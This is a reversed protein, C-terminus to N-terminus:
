FTFRAGAQGVRGGLGGYDLIEGFTSDAFNQDPGALDNRNFLNFFEMRLELNYRSQPGMPIVKHIGLDETAIGPNRLQQQYNGATGLQGFVPNQFCAKNLYQGFIRPSGNTLKCGPVLDIYVSAFGDYYNTSHIQMPTGTAYHFDGYISWNNILGNVFPGVSSFLKKGQGFPLFYILYGKVIHTVDFDSIDKAEDKLDYTNQLSGIGWLEQFDSDVDGHTRSWNYSAQVSFGHGVMRTISVQVSKYNGNGKPTGVSFLPGYGAEAQPYPTLGEWGPGTNGWYGNYTSPLKGTAYFNQMNAVTPQNHQFIGSQLHYSHSQIWEVDIRTARDLERQIGINYQQVNGPTLSHPDISVVDAQTYAPGKATTIVPQYGNDWNFNAEQSTTHFGPNGAVSYPIGGWTNLNLPTYYINFNGRAVLKPTIAYSVGIHPSYNYWDQDREFSQSGNTLYEYEGMEGTVPNMDNLEFSSWHGYKEKYPNNYDWRLSINMTLKRTVNINDIAYYSFTKRRGYQNDPTNNMANYVDGLLFSAFANGIENYGNPYDYWAGATSTPDFIIPYGGTFTGEDPQVNMQMARFEAGFKWNQNGHSWVLQDSYIFTQGVYVDNFQSGLPSFNWGNQYNGGNTYMGTDFYILPFNGAGQLLNLKRDWDGSQSTARSPVRFRNFTIYATNLLNPSFTYADNIRAGPATTDHYYSNAMPGGNVSNSSWVGGQDANIRPYDDFYFSGAIHQKSSANWDIKISSQTNHFWPDPGYAHSAENITFSSQPQYFQHYLQLIQATTKSIMSTPIMNGPFVCNTAPNVVAGQYVTQGCPDTGIVVSTTLMPSLNAYPAVSGDPNLGMMADTPVTNSLPGLNWQGQMYRELGLYFFLKNKKLPGGVGGGWDSLSDSKTLYATANTPDTIAGLRDAASLADLSTSHLFGFLSGHIQNTGSKMEYRFVGGGTRGADASIGSTDGEFEEVSEMPPQSESIYGGLQSVASTGDILVEKTMAMSGDIHSDYDTGEVGPIYAFMFNSLNRSGQVNLPLEVVAQADLNTSVVSDQTQIIAEAGSVNVTENVEGIPLVANVVAVQSILLVIGERKLTKFGQKTFTVEYNGISLNDARYLGSGDTKVRTVENTGVNRVKVAVGSLMASTTDRVTGTITAKDSQGFLPHAVCLALLAFVALFKRFMM